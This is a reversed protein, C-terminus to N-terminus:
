PASAKSSTAVTASGSGGGGSGPGGSASRPEGDRSREAVRSGARLYDFYADPVIASPM